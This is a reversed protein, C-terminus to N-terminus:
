LGCCFSEFEADVWFACVVNNFMTATEPHDPGLVKLNISLCMLEYELEKDNDGQLPPTKPALVTLM